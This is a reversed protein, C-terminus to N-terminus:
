YRSTSRFKGFSNGHECKWFRPVRLIGYSPVVRGLIMKNDFVLNWRIRSPRSIRDVTEVLEPDSNNEKGQDGFGEVLTIYGLLLWFRDNDPQIARLPSPQHRTRYAVKTGDRTRCGCVRVCVYVYVHLFFAINWYRLRSRKTENAPIFLYSWKYPRSIRLPYEYARMFIANAKKNGYLIM